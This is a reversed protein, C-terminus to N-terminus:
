KKRLKDLKDKLSGAVALVKAKGVLAGAVFGVVVALVYSM